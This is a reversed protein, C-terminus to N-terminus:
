ILYHFLCRQKTFSSRQSCHMLSIVYDTIKAISQGQPTADL